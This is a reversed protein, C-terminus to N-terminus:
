YFVFDVASIAEDLDNGAMEQLYKVVWICFKDLEKDMLQKGGAPISSLKDDGDTDGDDSDSGAETLQQGEAPVSPPMRIAGRGGLGFDTSEPPRPLQPWQPAEVYSIGEPQRASAQTPPTSVRAGIMVRKV